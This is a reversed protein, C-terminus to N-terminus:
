SKNKEAPDPAHCNGRAVLVRTPSVRRTDDKFTPGRRTGVVKTPLSISIMSLNAIKNRTIANIAAKKPNPPTAESEQSPAFIRNM